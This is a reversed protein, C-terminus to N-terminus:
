INDPLVYKRLELWGWSLTDTLSALATMEPPVVPREEQVAPCLRARQSSELGSRRAPFFTRSSPQPAPSGPSNAKM